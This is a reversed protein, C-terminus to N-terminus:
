ASLATAKLQIAAAQEGKLEKEKEGALDVAEDAIRSAEALVGGAHIKGQYMPIQEPNPNALQGQISACLVSGWLAMKKQSTM